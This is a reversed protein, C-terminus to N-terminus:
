FKLLKKIIKENKYRGILAFNLKKDIFLQKAVARHGAGAYLPEPKPSKVLEPVVLLPWVPLHCAFAGAPRSSTPAVALWIEEVPSL